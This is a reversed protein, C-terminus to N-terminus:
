EEDSLDSDDSFDSDDSETPTEKGAALVDMPIHHFAPVMHFGKGFVFDRPHMGYIEAYPTIEHVSSEGFDFRVRRKVQETQPAPPTSARGLDERGGQAVETVEADDDDTPPRVAAAENNHESVLEVSDVRQQPLADDHKEEIEETDHAASPGLVIFQAGGRGRCEKGRRARGWCGERHGRARCPKQSLRQEAVVAQEEHVAAGECM